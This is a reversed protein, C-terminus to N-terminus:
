LYNIEVDKISTIIVGYELILTSFTNLFNKM